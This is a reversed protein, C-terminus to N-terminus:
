INPFVGWLTLVLVISCTTVRLCCVNLDCVPTCVKLICVRVVTLAPSGCERHLWFFKTTLGYYFRYRGVPSSHLPPSLRRLTPTVYDCRLPLCTLCSSSRTLAVPLHFWVHRRWWEDVQASTVSPRNLIRHRGDVRDLEGSSARSASPLSVFASNRYATSFAMHDEINLVPSVFTHFGIGAGSKQHLHLM